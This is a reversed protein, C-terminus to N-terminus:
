KMAEEAALKGASYGGFLVISFMTGMFSYGDNFWGSTCTGVAYLNKIPRHTKDLVRMNHDILIGGICIGIAQYGKFIYYPATTLPWLYEAPKLFDADYRHKCFLNYEKVTTKLVEPDAGIYAAVENLTDFVAMSSNEGKAIENKFNDELKDLWACPDDRGSELSSSANEGYKGSIYQRKSTGQTGEEGTLNEGRRQVDRYISEDMQPGEEGTLNERRRLMERFISEDMLPFCMREPQLGIAMARMWAWDEYQSIAEDVFREGNRNLHMLMPRQMINWIRMNASHPGGYYASMRGNAAGVAEAMLLGDGTNHPLVGSWMWDHSLDEGPYLRKLLEQNYGISGTAIVVSKARIELEHEGQMAIVGIVAGTDDTLLKTGRTETMLEVGAKECANLLVSVLRNGGGELMHILQYKGEGPVNSFGQVDTYSIGKDELWRVVDASQMYWKRVLKANCHWSSMRMHERFVEDATYHLGLRKQVHTEVAAFGGVMRTSGGMKKMKDIILVKKAGSEKARLGASLGGGAGGIVCVDFHLIERNTGM